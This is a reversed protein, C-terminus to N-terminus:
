LFFIVSICVKVQVNEYLKQVKDWMGNQEYLFVVNIEVFQCCCCWIGYFLDKEDLLVYFEVLVDLNSEWVMVFDDGLLIVNNEFQVLVIYWVDYM